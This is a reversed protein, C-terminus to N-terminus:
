VFQPPSGSVLKIDVFLLKLTPELSIIEIRSVVLNGIIYVSIFFPICIGPSAVSLCIFMNEVWEGCQIRFVVMFAHPFDIFNWRPLSDQLFFTIQWLVDM